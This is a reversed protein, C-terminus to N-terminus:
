GMREPNPDRLKNHSEFVDHSHRCAVTLPRHLQEEADNHIQQMDAATTDNSSPCGGQSICIKASTYQPPCSKKQTSNISKKIKFAASEEEGTIAKKVEKQTEEFEDFKKDVVQIEALVFLLFV